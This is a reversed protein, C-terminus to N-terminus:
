GTVGAQRLAELVIEGIQRALLPPVANGVQVYQSTRSGALIYNDPFTQLRAAERVTLSRCQRPDPHIYYHGDKTIHSTITTAPRDWVQVRFRDSFNAGEELAKAVSAHDPLLDTPFKQLRPSVGHEQAYCAAYLYRCLDKDMHIRSTHNCVGHLRPDYFWDVAYRTPAEAAIFEAGRGHPPSEIQRLVGRIRRCLKESDVKRIGANAWRRGVQSRLYQVWAAGSDERRSFGSRIAPLGDLVSASAVAERAVLTRPTVPGLDDRLGLLIVRHRTQPIGFREADVISHRADGDTFQLREVLSYVRYTPNNGGRVPRGERDLAVAPVQLDELIRHFVRQRRFRASLLGKVNEMVFAVPRHDALIQLYEIYLRQRLDKTPRYVHGHRRARGVISYAQCPPGGILVWAESKGLAGDIHERVDDLSTKPSGLEAKWIRANAVGAHAGHRDYLKELSLEGRVARYYDEPVRKTRFQRLFSRLRLTECAYEDKEIALVVDFGPSRGDAVVASLGESLGGPGAFVDVVPIM